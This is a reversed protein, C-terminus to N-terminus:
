LFPTKNGLQGKQRYIYCITSDRRHEDSGLSFLSPSFYAWVPLWLIPQMIRMSLVRIRPNWTPWTYSITTTAPISHLIFFASWLCSGFVTFQAAPPKRHGEWLWEFAWCKSVQGGSHRTLHGNNSFFWRRKRKEMRVQQLLLNFSSSFLLPM